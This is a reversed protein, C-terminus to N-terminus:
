RANAEAAEAQRQKEGAELLARLEAMGHDPPRSTAEPVRPPLRDVPEFGAEPADAQPM